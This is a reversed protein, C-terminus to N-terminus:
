LDLKGERAAQITESVSPAKKGQQVPKKTVPKSSGKVTKSPKKKQQPNRRQQNTNVVASVYRVLKSISEDDANALVAPNSLDVNFDSKLLSLAEKEAPSGSEIGYNGFESTLKQAKSQGKNAVFENQIGSYKQELDVIQKRHQYERDLMLNGFQETIEADDIMRQINTVFGENIMDSIIPDENQQQQVTQQQETKQGQQQELMAYYKDKWSQEERRQQEADDIDPESQQENDVDLDADTEVNDEETTSEEDEQEDAKVGLISEMSEEDVDNFIPDNEINVNEQSEQSEANVLGDSSGSTLDTM